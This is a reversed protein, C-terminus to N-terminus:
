RSAATVETGVEEKLARLIGSTDSKDRQRVQEGPPGETLDGRWNRAEAQEAFRQINGRMWAKVDVAVPRLTDPDILTEPIQMVFEETLVVPGGRRDRFEVLVYAHGTRDRSVEVVRPILAM